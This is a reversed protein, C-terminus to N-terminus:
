FKSFLFFGVCSSDLTVSATPPIEITRPETAQLKPNKPYRPMEVVSRVMSTIGKRTSATPTSLIKM